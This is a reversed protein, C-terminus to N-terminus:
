VNAGDWGMGVGKRLPLYEVGLAPASFLPLPFLASINFNLLLLCSLPLLPFVFLPRSPLLLKQKYTCLNNGRTAALGVSVEKKSNRGRSSCNGALLLGAPYTLIVSVVTHTRRFGAGQEPAPGAAAVNGTCGPLRIMWGLPHQPARLCAQGQGKLGCGQDWGSAEM